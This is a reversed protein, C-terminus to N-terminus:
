DWWFYWYRANVLAGALRRLSDYGQFVLDGGSYVFQERALALASERDTPPRAVRMEVTDGSLCVIEAGYRAHWDKHVAVHSEPAPCENWAGFHMYALVEWPRTTPILAMFVGDAPEGKGIQLPVTWGAQPEMAEWAGLELTGYYEPDGETRERLWAAVDLGQAVEISKSPLAENFELVDALQRDPPPVVTMERQIM